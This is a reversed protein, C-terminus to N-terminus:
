AWPFLRGTLETLRRNSAAFRGALEAVGAADLDSGRAANLVSGSAVQERPLGLFGHASGLVADPEAFYEESCLVLIRERPFHDYWRALAPGYESQRAYSLQEHAYSYFHPDALLRAEADGVREDEAALADAFSLSELKNRWREKWHSYARQVPDRLVVIIKTDPVVRAAREAALPHFLYYPSAEGVVVPGGTRRQAFQRVATSPMHARYWHSGRAFNVDFYHVGKTAAAKPLHEPRPFLPYIQSHRLLDYYFSTSGGRKAGIVLFDPYPRWPSTLLAYGHIASRGAAIVTQRV